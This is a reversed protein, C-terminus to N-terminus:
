LDLFPGWYGKYQKVGVECGLTGGVNPGREPSFVTENIAELRARM